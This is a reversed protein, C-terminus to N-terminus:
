ATSFAALLARLDVVGYGAAPDWRGNYNQTTRIMAARIQNASLWRWDEAAVSDLLLAIAGTVHAAAISTGSERRVDRASGGRAGQVDVGPACVEPKERGDRTPGMATFSAMEIPTHSNVAGVAIVTAATAPVRITTNESVNNL